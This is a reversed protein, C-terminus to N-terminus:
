TDRRSSFDGLGEFIWHSNLASPIHFESICIQQAHSTFNLWSLLKEGCNKNEAELSQGRGGERGQWWGCNSWWKIVEWWRWRCSVKKCSGSARGGKRLPFWGFGGLVYIWVRVNLSVTSEKWFGFLGTSREFETISGSSNRKHDLLFHVQHHDNEWRVPLTASSQSLTSQFWSNLPAPVDQSKFALFSSLLWSKQPNRQFWGRHLSKLLCKPWWPEEFTSSESKSRTSLLRKSFSAQILQFMKDRSLWFVQWSVIIRGHSKSIEKFDVGRLTKLSSM